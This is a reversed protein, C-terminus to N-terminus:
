VLYDGLPIVSSTPSPETSKPTPISGLVRHILNLSIIVVACVVLYQLFQWQFNATTFLNRPPLSVEFNPSSDPAQSDPAQSDPFQSDTLSANTIPSTDSLLLSDGGTSRGQAIPRSKPIPSTEGLTIDTIDDFSFDGDSPNAGAFNSAIASGTDDGVGVGFGNGFMEDLDSSAATTNIKPAATKPLIAEQNNSKASFNPLPPLPMKQPSRMTGATIDEDELNAEGLRIEETWVPEDFGTKQWAIAVTTINQIELTLFWKRLMGVLIPRKPIRIEDDPSRLDSEILIDLRDGTRELTALMGQSKLLRNMLSAIAKVNGQKAQEVIENQTM